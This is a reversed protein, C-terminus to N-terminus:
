GSENVDSHRRLQEARRDLSRVHVSDVGYEAILLPRLEALEVLGQTTHGTAHLMLARQYKADRYLADGSDAGALFANFHRIAADPDGCEAFSVGAVYHLYLVAPHRGGDRREHDPIVLELLPAARSYEDATYLTAALDTRIELALDPDHTSRRLADELLDIAQQPQAEELLDRVRGRIALADAVDLPPAAPGAAAEAAKPGKARDGRPAPALPRLFPRRPDREGGAGASRDTQVFPLLVEYVAEADPRDTPQKALMALLLKDIDEPVEARRLRVSGAPTNIHHDLYSRSPTEEFPVRGTILEHLVCGLAYVDTPPGVPNGLAQERSMYPPSGVTRGIQTLRPLAAAGQLVAVGFDLLKV